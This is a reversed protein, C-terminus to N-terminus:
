PKWGACNVRIEALTMLEGYESVLQLNPDLGRVRETVQCGVGEGGWSTRVPVDDHGGRDSLMLLVGPVDEDRVRLSGAAHGSIDVDIWTHGGDKAGHMLEADDHNRLKLATVPERLHYYSTSV